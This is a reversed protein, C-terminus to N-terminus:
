SLPVYGPISSLEIEEAQQEASLHDRAYQLYIKENMFIDFLDPDVHGDEKMRGLITLSQSLSM